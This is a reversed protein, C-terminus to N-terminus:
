TYEAPLEAFFCDTVFGVDSKKEENLWWIYNGNINYYKRFVCSSKKIRVKKERSNFGTIEETISTM